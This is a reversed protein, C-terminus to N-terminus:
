LFVEVDFNDLTAFVMPSAFSGAIADHRAPRPFEMAAAGSGTVRAGRAMMAEPRPTRAMAGSISDTGETTWDMGTM